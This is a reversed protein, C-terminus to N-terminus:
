VRFPNSRIIHVADAQYIGKWFKSINYNQWWYYDVQFFRLIGPKVIKRGSVDEDTMVAPVLFFSSQCIGMCIKDNKTNLFSFASFKFSQVSPVFGFM